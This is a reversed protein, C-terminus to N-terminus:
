TWNLERFNEAHLSFPTRTSHVRSKVIYNFYHFHFTFLLQLSDVWETSLAALSKLIKLDLAKGKDKKHARMHLSIRPAIIVAKKPKTSYQVTSIKEGSM